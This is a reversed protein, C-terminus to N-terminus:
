GISARTPTTPGGRHGARAPRAHSGATRRSRGRAVWAAMLRPLAVGLRRPIGVSVRQDLVRYDADEVADLIGGYLEFATRMCDRSTPHLMAIGPEAEAYLRRTRDIEFRLLERVAPTVVGRELDARSVGAAAMDEAPLYVRGRLLDEGVDRIFNTLQFAEGLRRAPEHAEDTLPELIPLMQLGIVAASGYMYAQLDAYTPYDTVTIDMQMSHLFADFYDLPIDWRRVTHVTAAAVPDTSSGSRLATRLAESWTLLSDPDPSDLADVFEDAHRAYGYLAHVYPRKSPPLLLTALYYTRGHAANLERCREFSARLPQDTIGAADLERRSV